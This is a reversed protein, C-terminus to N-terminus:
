SLPPWASVVAGEVADGYWVPVRQRVEVVEGGAESSGVDVGSQVEDLREVM